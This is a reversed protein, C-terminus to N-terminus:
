RACSETQSGGGTAGGFGILGISFGVSTTAGVSTSSAFMRSLSLDFTTCENHWSLTTASSDVRHAVLDYRWNVKGSWNGRLPYQADLIWERTPLTTLPQYATPDAVMWVYSTAVKAHAGTWGLRMEEKTLHTGGFVTRNILDLNKWKVQGAVLWDSASAGLGSAPDHLQATAQRFIRAGVLGLSVGTPNIRSYSLGVNARAGVEVGDVGNFNSTSWLNGEDFESIQSDENPVSAVKLPSWALLAVPEIVQSVGNAGAKVWPWRLEMAATPVTRVITSPYTSDQNISYFDSEVSGIASALIGPGLTWNRRWDLRVGARAVDRGIIDTTSSRILSHGSFTLSADGGILAPQFRRAWTAGAVNSPLTANDDGARISHFHLAQVDIYEDHRVRSVDIGSKLRDVQPLGYTLFYDPDSVTQYQLNARFGDPLAFSGNAFLYGRTRGPMLDDRSVAGRLLVIGSNFAQRYRLGLSEANKQGLFPSLLLDRNPGLTQFYPLTVGTGFTSTGTFLPVLFGSARKVTPDPLAMEPIYFVPVGAFRLQADEFYLKQELQDHIVRKARIEWLPVPNAACVQCSSTVTNKLQTYRGDVRDMETAAVQVQHDLMLRASTLIGNKLDSSLEASDALVTAHGAADVLTLPGEINLRGLTQDYVVRTARLRMGKYLVEVNGSATLIKGASTVSDAVLSALPPTQQAHVPLALNLAMLAAAIGRCVKRVNGQM